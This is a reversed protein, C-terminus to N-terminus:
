DETEGDTEGGINEYAKKLKDLNNKEDSMGRIYDQLLPALFDKWLEDFNVEELKKFYAAGIHYNDNLEEIDSIANNLADMRKVAEDKKKGLFDLMELKDNAKIEIFRFRRRMAFDFSDVSRDIDNMTGIIYVNEPVYFKETPDDHLNAYQTLVGGSEGRYGPDISFFLEGFIKSIEGRNIEDIVFIFEKRDTTMKESSGNNFRDKLINFIAFIYSDRQDNNTRNVLSKIDKVQQIEDKHKLATTLVKLSVTLEKTVANGEVYVTFKEDDYSTVIFSKGSLLNLSTNNENPNTSKEIEDDLFNKIVTLYETDTIQNRQSQETDRLNDRAKECFDLFVGKKLSFGITNGESTKPRLGEVFDTYDYSPHFQVFAVQKQQHESLDSYEKIQGGSIIDAAIQKALYSKGTGPAGHFIVNKSKIVTDSHPFFYQINSMNSNEMINDIYAWFAQAIEKIQLQNPSDFGCCIEKIIKGNYYDKGRKVIMLKKDNEDSRNYEINNDKHNIYGKDWLKEGADRQNYNWRFPFGDIVLSKDNRCSKGTIYDNLQAKAKGAIGFNGGNNTYCWDSFDVFEKIVAILHQVRDM